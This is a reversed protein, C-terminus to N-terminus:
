VVGSGLGRGFTINAAREVQRIVVGIAFVQGALLDFIPQIMVLQEAL